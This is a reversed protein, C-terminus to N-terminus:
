YESWKYCHCFRLLSVGMNKGVLCVYRGVLKALMSGNVRPKASTTDMTLLRAALPEWGHIGSARKLSIPRHSACLMTVFKRASIAKNSVIFITMFMVAFRSARACLYSGTVFLLLNSRKQQSESRYAIDADSFLVEGEPDGIRPDGAM